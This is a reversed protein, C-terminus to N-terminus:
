HSIKVRLIHTTPASTQEDPWHIHLFYATLTNASNDPQELTWHCARTFLTMFGQLIEQDSSFSGAEKFPSQEM